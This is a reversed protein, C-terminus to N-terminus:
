RLVRAAELVAAAVQRLAPSSLRWQQWHLAVDVRGEGLPVLVGTELDDGLQLEPVLGWGLGLRVAEAYESTAPVYHRPPDLRRRSQRRLFRDQLDDKRDFCLVPAVALAQASVGGGFWDRALAPSCVPRYRMVGLRRVTCGPVPAATSTVAATAAGTRLLDLSHEQDERLVELRVRDAVRALGALAWTHLSDSNMVVTVRPAPGAAAPELEVALEVALLALQRAFRLVSQGSETLEVPRVRRLVPRGVATELARVRQSVASPTLNLARAAADFTGGDVIAALTRAQEPQVEIM